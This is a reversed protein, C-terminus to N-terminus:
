FKTSNNKLWEVIQEFNITGTSISIILQYLENESANIKYRYFILLSYMALLGIRKNGDVFPHNVVLSEALAAAKEFCSQYLENSDFTQFPRNVASKLLEIDRIGNSGGYDRISNSHLHLIDEILIM